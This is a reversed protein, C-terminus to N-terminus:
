RRRAVDEAVLDIVEEASMATSNVIRAGAAVQLPAAERGSDKQDRRQLAGLVAEVDGGGEAGAQDNLRRRAREHPDADLYYKFPTTPFVVSGIDRGEMVLDGLRIMDRLRAVVFRRVEPVAAYDSVAAAVAESRLASGPDDGDISFRVSGDEVRCDFVLRELLALLGDRDEAAVSARLAKWTIGRYFAGSDVYALAMRRAVGRAVTSKGSAAPGDIAIVLPETASM